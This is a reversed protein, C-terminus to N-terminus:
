APVRVLGVGVDDRTMAAAVGQRTANGEIMSVLTQRTFAGGAGLRQSWLATLGAVSAAVLVLGQNHTAAVRTQGGRFRKGHVIVHEISMDEGESSRSQLPRDVTTVVRV